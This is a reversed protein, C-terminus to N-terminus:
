SQAPQGPAYPGTPGLDEHGRRWRDDDFGISEGALVVLGDLLDAILLEEQDALASLPNEVVLVPEYIGIFIDCLDRFAAAERDAIGIITIDPNNTRAITMAELVAQTRGSASAAIIGGGRCSNPMPVVGGMISVQAGGHALRNAALTAALLARGAGLVRVVAGERMWTALVQHAKWVADRNAEVTRVLASTIAHSRIMIRAGAYLAPQEEPAPAKKLAAPARLRSRAPEPSELERGYLEELYTRISRANM